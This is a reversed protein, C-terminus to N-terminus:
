DAAQAIVTAVLPRNLTQAGEDMIGRIILRRRAAVMVLRIDGTPESELSPLLARCGSANPTLGLDLVLALMLDSGGVQLAGLPRGGQAIASATVERLMTLRADLREQTLNGNMASTLASSGLLHARDLRNHCSSCLVQMDDSLHSPDAAPHSIAMKGVVKITPEEQENVGRGKWTGHVYLDGEMVGCCDCTDGARDRLRAKFSSNFGPQYIPKLAGPSYFEDDPASPRYATSLPLATPHVPEPVDRREPPLIHRLVTELDRPPMGPRVIIGLREQTGELTKGTSHPQTLARMVIPLPDRAAERLDLRSTTSRRRPASYTTRSASYTM